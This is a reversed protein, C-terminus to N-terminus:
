NSAPTANGQVWDQFICSSSKQLIGALANLTKKLIWCSGVMHQYSYANICYETVECCCVLDRRTTCENGNQRARSVRIGFGIEWSYLNYFEKAEEFSNFTTGQYPYFIPQGSREASTAIARSVASDGTFSLCEDPGEKARM